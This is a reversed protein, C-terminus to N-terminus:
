ALLVTTVHQQYYGYTGVRSRYIGIRRFTTNHPGLLKYVEMREGAHMWRTKDGFPPTQARMWPKSFKIKSAELNWPELKQQAEKLQTLDDTMPILLLGFEYYGSSSHEFRPYEKLIWTATSTPNPHAKGVALKLLWVTNESLELWDRLENESDCDLIVEPTRNDDDRFNLECRLDCKEMTRTFVEDTANGSSAVVSVPKAPQIVPRETIIRLTGIDVQGRIELVDSNELRRSRSRLEQTVESPPNIVTIQTAPHGGLSEIVHEKLVQSEDVFLIESAIFSAPNIWSGWSYSPNGQIRNSEMGPKSQLYWLLSAPEILWIGNQYCESFINYPMGSKHLAQALGFIAPLRDGAKTLDKSTYASVLRYWYNFLPALAEVDHFRGFLKRIKRPSEPQQRIHNLDDDILTGSSLALDHSNFKVLPSANDTWGWPITESATVSSCEWFVEEQGFYITRPSLIREQLIWGRRTLFGDFVAKAYCQSSLYVYIPGRLTGSYGSLLSEPMKCPRSIRSIRRMFLRGDKEESGAVAVNLWAFEYISRMNSAEREWDEPSDQIICLADIWLYRIGLRRSCEFADQFTLSLSSMDISKKRAEYNAQTTASPRTM